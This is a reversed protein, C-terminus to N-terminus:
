THNAAYHATIRTATLAAPYIAVDDLLGAFHTSTPASPWGSLTDYAVRWYGAYSTTTTTAADSAVLAGDVYLRMGTTGFSADVLHWRDDAYAAPSAVTKKTTPNVGFVVQGSDTLYVHRDSTTSAGTQANGFGIIRGGGATTRFWAELTFATPNTVQTATSLYGNVGDFGVAKNTDCKIAGPQGLTPASRYTGNHPAVASDTATTGTTEGLRYYAYPTDAAVTTAYTSATGCFATTSLRNAGVSTSAAYVANTGSVLGGTAIALAVLVVTIPAAAALRPRGYARCLSRLQALLLALLPGGLLLLKGRPSQTLSLWLGAHPVHGGMVGVVGSAPTFDPDPTRNADGKTQIFLGYPKRELSHIRHTTLRQAGPAHFSVIMGPRLQEPAVHRVLVVDGARFTPKMSGSVVILLQDGSLHVLAPVGQALASLLVGAVLAARGLRAIGRASSQILRTM